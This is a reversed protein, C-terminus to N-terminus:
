WPSWELGHFEAATMAIMAVVISLPFMFWYSVDIRKEALQVYSEM